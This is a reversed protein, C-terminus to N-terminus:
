KFNLIKIKFKATIKEVECRAYKQFDRFGCMNWISVKVWWRIVLGLKQAQFAYGVKTKWPLLMKSSCFLGLASPPAINKIFDASDYMYLVRVIGHDSYLPWSIM